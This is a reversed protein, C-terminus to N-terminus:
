NLFGPQTRDSLTSAVQFTPFTYSLYCKVLLIKLIWNSSRSIISINSSNSSIIIIIINFIGQYNDLIKAIAIIYRPVNEESCIQKLEMMLASTIQQLEFEVDCSNKVRQTSEKERRVTIEKAIGHEIEKKKQTLITSLTKRKQTLSHLKRADKTM